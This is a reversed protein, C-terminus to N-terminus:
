NYVPGKSLDWITNKLESFDYYNYLDGSTTDAFTADYLHYQGADDLIANYSHLIEENACIAVQIYEPNEFEYNVVKNQFPITEVLARFLKAYSKCIGKGTNLSTYLSQYQKKTFDDNTYDYELFEITYDFCIQIAEDQSTGAPINERVIGAITTDIENQKKALNEFEKEPILHFEGESNSINYCVGLDVISLSRFTEEIATRTHATFDDFSCAEKTLLGFETNYFYDDSREVFKQKLDSTGANAPFSAILTLLSTLLVVKFNKVM